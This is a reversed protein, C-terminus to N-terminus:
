IRSGVWSAVHFCAFFFGCIFDMTSDSGDHSEVMSDAKTTHRLFLMAEKLNWRVISVRTKPQIRGV